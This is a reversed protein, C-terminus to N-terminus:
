RLDVLPAGSLGAQNLGSAIAPLLESLQSTTAGEGNVLYIHRATLHLSEDTDDPSVIQDPVVTRSHATYSAVLDFANLRRGPVFVKVPQGVIRTLLACSQLDLHARDWPTLNVRHGNEDVRSGAGGSEVDVSMNVLQQVAEPNEEATSRDVVATARLAAVQRQIGPDTLQTGDLRVGIFAVAGVHSPPRAVGAGYATVVGVGTTLAAWLLPVAAVAAAIRAVVVSPRRPGSPAVPEPDDLPGTDPVLQAVPEPADIPTAASLDLVPDPLARSQRGAAAAELVYDVPDSAFM